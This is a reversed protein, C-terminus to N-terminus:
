RRHQTHWELRRDCMIDGMINRIIDRIINRIIV